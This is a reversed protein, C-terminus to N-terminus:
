PVEKPPKGKPPKTPPLQKATPARLAGQKLLAPVDLADDPEFTVLTPGPEDGHNADPNDLFHLWNGRRGARPRAVLADVRPPADKTFRLQHAILVWPGIHEPLVSM